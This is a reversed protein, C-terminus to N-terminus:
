FLEPVFCHQGDCRWVYQYIYICCGTHGRCCSSEAHFQFIAKFFNFKPAEESVKVETDVRIVTKRVMFQFCILGLGGMLLAIWFVRNGLLNNNADYILIPLLIGTIIGGVMAGVNRFTSLQSREVPDDTIISLMSGYPVNAITYFADWLIYGVVFLINKVM